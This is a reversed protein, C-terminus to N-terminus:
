QISFGAKSLSTNACELDANKVMIYDTDFTSIAFISVKSEALPAAISALIGTLSFDLPGLVKFLRWSKECNIDEPINKQECVISLEDETKNISFFSGRLAWNPIGDDPGLRCIAYTNPSLTLKM